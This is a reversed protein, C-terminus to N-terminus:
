LLRRFIQEVLALGSATAAWKFAKRIANVMIPGVSALVQTCYWVKARRPGFAPLVVTLYEEELDGPLSERDKKALFLYLIYHAFRPPATRLDSRLAAIKEVARWRRIGDSISLVELESREAENVLIERLETGDSVDRGLANMVLRAVADKGSEEAARIAQAEAARREQEVLLARLKTHEVAREEADRRSERELAALLLAGRRRICRDLGDLTWRGLASNERDARELAGQVESDRLRQAARIRERDRQRRAAAALARERTRSEEAMAAMEAAARREEKDRLAERELKSALRCERLTATVEEDAAAEQRGRLSRANESDIVRQLQEAKHRAYIGIVARSEDDLTREASCELALLESEVLAEYRKVWDPHSRLKPVLAGL